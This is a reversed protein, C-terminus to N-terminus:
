IDNKYYQKNIIRSITTPSTKYERALSAKKIKYEEFKSRIEQAQEYTLSRSKAGNAPSNQSILVHDTPLGYQSQLVCQANFSEKRTSHESVIEVTLDKRGYFKGYSGTKRPPRRTHEYLRTKPRVSEGVYEVEGNQNTLVYVYFVQRKYM